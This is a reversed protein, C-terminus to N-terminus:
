KKSFYNLMDVCWFNFIFNLFFIFHFLKKRFFYKIFFYIKKEGLGRSMIQLVKRVTTISTVALDLLAVIEGM